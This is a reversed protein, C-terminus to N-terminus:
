HNEWNIHLSVADHEDLKLKYVLQNTFLVWFLFLLLFLLMDVMMVAMVFVPM